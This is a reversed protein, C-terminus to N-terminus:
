SHNVAPRCILILPWPNCCKQVIPSLKTPARKDTVPVDESSSVTNSLIFAKTSFNLIKLKNTSTNLM